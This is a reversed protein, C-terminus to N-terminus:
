KKYKQLGAYHGGRLMGSKLVNKLSILYIKSSKPHYIILSFM